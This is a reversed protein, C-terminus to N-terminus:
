RGLPQVLPGDPTDRVEWGLAALEGRLTDAATWDRRARAAQRQALLALVPEPPPPPAAPEAPAPAATEDWVQPPLGAAPDLPRTQGLACLEFPEGPGFHSEAGARLVTVGGRGLVRCREAALDVILATHEDVGVVTATAPLLGLLGAFREQGMFCRSTDLEAGGEANNWHPVFVLELGYPGLLDLGQQWHLEEGVKYIEYVPLAHAGMAIAAASAAVLAAGRRHRAVMRQFALSDRLQRVTYTPSGPGLFILDAECLATSVAPEDPSAPTGRRRAPVTTIVPRRSQLRTRMYDAVKGAVRAANPQFGAPTELLALRLPLPLAGALSDYLQGGAPATEGSGLLAFLGPAPHPM